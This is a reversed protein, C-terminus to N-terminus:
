LPIILTTTIANVREYVLIKNASITCNYFDWVFSICHLLIIRLVISFYNWSTWYRSVESSRSSSAEVICALQASSKASSSTTESIVRSFMILDILCAAYYISVAFHDIPVDYCIPNLFISFLTVFNAWCCKAVLDSTLPWRSVFVRSLALKKSMFDKPFKM